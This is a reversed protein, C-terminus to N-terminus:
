DCTVKGVLATIDQNNNDGPETKAIAGHFESFAPYVRVNRNLFIRGLRPERSTDLLEPEGIARLMREAPSSYSTPDDWWAADAYARISLSVRCSHEDVFRGRKPRNTSPLLQRNSQSSKATRV